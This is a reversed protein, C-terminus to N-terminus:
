LLDCIYGKSYIVYIAWFKEIQITFEVKNLVQPKHSIRRGRYIQNKPPNQTLNPPNQGFNAFKINGRKNKGKKALERNNRLNSPRQLVLYTFFGQVFVSCLYPIISDFLVRVIGQAIIQHDHFLCLDM